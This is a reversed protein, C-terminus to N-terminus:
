TGPLDVTAGTGVGSSFGGLFLATMRAAVGGPGISGDVTHIWRYTWNLMGFLCLAHVRVEDTRLEPRLRSLIAVAEDLYADRLGDIEGAADGQLTDLEHSMVRMEALHGAFFRIHNDVFIGLRSAPEDVGALREQLGDLVRRFNECILERLIAEKSDFHYYITGLSTGTRRAIQRMSTAAFGRESFAAAAGELIRDTRPAPASATKTLADSM